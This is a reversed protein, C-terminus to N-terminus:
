AARHQTGHGMTVFLMRSPESVKATHWTGKPVVIAARGSLPVQQVGAPQELLLTAAGSLVITTSNGSTDGACQEYEFHGASVERRTTRSRAM